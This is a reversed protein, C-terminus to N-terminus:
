CCLHLLQSWAATADTSTIDCSDPGVVVGATGSCVWQECFASGNNQVRLEIAEPRM